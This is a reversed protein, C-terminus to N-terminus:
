DFFTEMKTLIMSKMFIYDNRSMLLTQINFVIMFYGGVSQVDGDFAISHTEKVLNMEQCNEVWINRKMKRFLFIVLCSRSSLLKSANSRCVLLLDAVSHPKLCANNNNMIVALSVSVISAVCGLDDSLAHDVKAYTIRNQIERLLPKPDSINVMFFLLSFFFGMRISDVCVHRLCAICFVLEKLPQQCFFLYIIWVCIHSVTFAVAVWRYCGLWFLFM